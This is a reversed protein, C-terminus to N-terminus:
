ADFFVEGVVRGLVKSLLLLMATSKGMRKGEKRVV